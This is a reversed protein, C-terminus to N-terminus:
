RSESLVELEHKWYAGTGMTDDCWRVGYLVHELHPTTNISTVLGTADVITSRFKVLDGVKM